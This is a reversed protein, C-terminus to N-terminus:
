RSGGCHGRRKSLRHWMSKRLNPHLGSRSWTCNGANAAISGGCGAAAAGRAMAMGISSSASRLSISPLWIGSLAPMTCRCRYGIAQSLMIIPHQTFMSQWKLQNGSHVTHQSGFAKIKERASLIVLKCHQLCNCRGHIWVDMFSDIDDDDNHAKVHTEINDMLGHM